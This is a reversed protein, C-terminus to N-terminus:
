QLRMLKLPAPVNKAMPALSRFWVMFRVELLFLQENKNRVIDLAWDNLSVM